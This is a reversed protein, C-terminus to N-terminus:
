EEVPTFMPVLPTSANQNCSTILATDPLRSRRPPVSTPSPTISKARKPTRVPVSMDSSRERM